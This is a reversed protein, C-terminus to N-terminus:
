KNKIYKVIDSIIKHYPSNFPRGDDYKGNRAEDYTMQTLTHGYSGKGQIRFERIDDWFMVDYTGFSKIIPVVKSTKELFMEKFM